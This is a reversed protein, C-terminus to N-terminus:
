TADADTGAHSASGEGCAAARVIRELPRECGQPVNVWGTVQKAALLDSGLVQEVAAEAMAFTVGTGSVRAKRTKKETKGLMADLTKRLTELHSQIARTMEELGRVESRAKELAERDRNAKENLDVLLKEMEMKEDKRQM